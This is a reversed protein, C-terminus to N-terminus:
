LFDIPWETAVITCEFCSLLFLISSTSRLVNHVLAGTKRMINKWRGIKPTHEEGTDM